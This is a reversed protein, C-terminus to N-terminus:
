AKIEYHVGDLFARRGAARRRAVYGASIARPDDDLDTLTVDWAGGWRITVGQERAATRVAVAIPYIAPWEWQLTGGIFPVLDVAHGTLHRSNMTQSVGRDVMDQQEARTRMGDHVGFDQTTLEIARQVVKVLADHVGELEARSRKGLVFGSSM